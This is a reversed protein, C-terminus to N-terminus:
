SNLVCNTHPSEDWNEENESWSEICFQHPSSRRLKRYKRHTTLYREGAEDHTGKLQIDNELYFTERITLNSVIFKGISKLFINDLLSIFMFILIGILLIKKFFQFVSYKNIKIVKVLEPLKFNLGPIIAISALLLVYAVYIQIGFTYTNVNGYPFLILGLSLVVLLEIDM